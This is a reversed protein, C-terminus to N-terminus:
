HLSEQSKLNKKNKKEDRQQSLWLLRGLWYCMNVLMIYVVSLVAVMIYYSKLDHYGLGVVLVIILYVVSGVLVYSLIRQLRNVPHDKESSFTSFFIHNNMVHYVYDEFQGPATFFFGQKFYIDSCGMFSVGRSLKQLYGVKRKIM